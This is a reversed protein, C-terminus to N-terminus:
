HRVAEPAAVSPSGPQLDLLDDSVVATAAELVQRIGLAPDLLAGDLEARFRKGMPEGAFLNHVHKALLRKLRPGQTTIMHRSTINILRSVLWDMLEDM